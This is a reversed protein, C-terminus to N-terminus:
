SDSHMLLVFDVILLFFSLSAGLIYCYTIVLVFLSLAFFEFSFKDQNM